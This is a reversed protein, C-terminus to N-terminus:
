NLLYYSNQTIIHIGNVGFAIEKIKSTRTTEVNGDVKGYAYIEYHEKLLKAAEFIDTIPYSFDDFDSKPIAEFCFLNLTKVNTM